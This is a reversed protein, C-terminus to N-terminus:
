SVPLRVSIKPQLFKEVVYVKDSSATRQSIPNLNISLPYQFPLKAPLISLTLRTVPAVM